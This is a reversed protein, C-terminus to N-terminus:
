NRILLILGDLKKSLNLTQDPNFCSVVIEIMEKRVKEIRALIKGM